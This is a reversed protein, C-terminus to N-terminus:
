EDITIIRRGYIRADVSFAGPGLICLAAANLAHLAFLLDLGKASLIASGIAAMCALGASFRTLAGMLLSLATVAILGWVWWSVPGLVLAAVVLLLAASIRLLLLAAGSLGAPFVLFLDIVPLGDVASLGAGM